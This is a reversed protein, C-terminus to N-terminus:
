YHRSKIKQKMGLADGRRTAEEIQEESAGLEVAKEVAMKEVLQHLDRQHNYVSWFGIRSSVIVDLAGQKTEIEVIETERNQDSIREKVVM